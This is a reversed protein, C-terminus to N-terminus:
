ERYVPMTCDFIMSNYHNSLNVSKSYLITLQNQNVSIALSQNRMKDNRQEKQLCINTSSPDRTTRTSKIIMNMITTNFSSVDTPTAQRYAISATTITLEAVTMTHTHISYM